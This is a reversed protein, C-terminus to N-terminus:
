ENPPLKALTELEREPARKRGSKKAAAGKSTTPIPDGSAKAEENRRRTRAAKFGIASRYARTKEYRLVLDENGDVEVRRDLGAAIANIRKHRREDVDAEIFELAKVLKRAPALYSRVAGIQDNDKHLAAIDEATVGARAGLTLQNGFLEDFVGELGRQERRKPPAQGRRRYGAFLAVPSADVSWEGAELPKEEIEEKVQKM